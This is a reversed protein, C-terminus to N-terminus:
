SNVFLPLSHSTEKDRSTSTSVIGRVRVTESLGRGSEIIRIIVVFGQTLEIGSSVFSQLALLALHSKM